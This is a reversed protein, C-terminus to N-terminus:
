LALGLFSFQCYFHFLLLLLLIDPHYTLKQHAKLIFTTKVRPALFQCGGGGGERGGERGGLRILKKPNNVLFGGPKGLCSPQEPFISELIIFNM